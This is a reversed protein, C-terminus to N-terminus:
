RQRGGGGGVAIFFVFPGEWFILQDSQALIFGDEFPHSAAIVDQVLGQHLNEDWVHESRHGTLVGHRPWASVPPGLEQEAGAGRQASDRSSLCRGM